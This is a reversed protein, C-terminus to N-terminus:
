SVVVFGCESGPGQNWPRLHALPRLLGPGADEWRPEPTHTSLLPTPAPRTVSSCWSVLSPRARGQRGAVTKQAEIRMRTIPTPVTVERDDRAMTPIRHASSM